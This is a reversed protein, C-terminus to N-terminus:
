APLDETLWSWKRGQAIGRIVSYSVGHLGALLRRSVGGQLSHWIVKVAEENLIANGHREGRTSVGHLVRDAHNEKRTGWELNELRNDAPDGNLHRTEMGEPCPGVFAELVAQHIHCVVPKGRRCLAVHLHGSRHKGASLIRERVPLPRGNKRIVVRELSRVRGRDSVEYFGEWGVVPRWQEESM